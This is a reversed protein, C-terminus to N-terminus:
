DRLFTNMKELCQEATKRGIQYVRELEDPNKEMKGINLPESPRIVFVEGNEEKERIYKTTENYNIHREAMAKILNPYKRLMIKALPLAQNKGKIYDLPQTLIVVNRNYGISEFYKLPISDAVGGDLLKNDGIEVVRSVMPMSASARMWQIDDNRGTTCKHYVPKGTLVDTCTVYFEMPNKEFAEYDWIDLKEPIERYCFDAGFLDGTKILSRFSAYRKDNCYNKNYRVARGIQNSKYNCGFAAGASVGITGDFTINNEMFVDIVGCTFMGRMAGGELILGTKKM